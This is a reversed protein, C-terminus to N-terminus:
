GVIIVAFDAASSRRLVMAKALCTEPVSPPPALLLQTIAPFFDVVPIGMRALSGWRPCPTGPIQYSACRTVGEIFTEPDM